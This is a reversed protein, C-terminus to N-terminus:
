VCDPLHVVELLKSPHSPAATRCRTSGKKPPLGLCQNFLACELQIRLRIREAVVQLKDYTPTLAFISLRTKVSVEQKFNEGCVNCNTDFTTKSAFVIVLGIKM